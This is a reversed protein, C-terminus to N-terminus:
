PLVRTSGIDGSGREILYNSCKGTTASLYANHDSYDFSKVVCQGQCQSSTQCPTGSDTTPFHCEGAVFMQCDVGYSCSSRWEGKKQICVYEQIDDVNGYLVVTLFLTIVSVVSMTILASRRLRFIFAYFIIAFVAGIIAYTAIEENSISAGNEFRGLFRFTLPAIAYTVFASFLVAALWRVKRSALVLPPHPRGTQEFKKTARRAHHLRFIHMLFVAWVVVVLGALIFTLYYPAYGFMRVSIFIPWMAANVFHYVQMEPRYNGYWDEISVMLFVALSTLYYMIVISWGPHEQVFQKIHRTM